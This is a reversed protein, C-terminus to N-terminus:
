NENMHLTSSIVMVFVECTSEGQLSPLISSPFPRNNVKRGVRLRRHRSRPGTERFDRFSKPGSFGNTFSGVAQKAFGIKQCTKLIVFLFIVTFNLSKFGRREQSVFSITVGSTQPSRSVPGQVQPSVFLAPYSTACEIVEVITTFIEHCFSLTM